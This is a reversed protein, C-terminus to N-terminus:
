FKKWQYDRMLKSIFHVTHKAIAEVVDQYDYVQNHTDIVDSIGRIIIFPIEFKHAVSAIAVGEMECAVVTPIVDMIPKLVTLNTVFQDGSVISGEVFSINSEQLLTRATQVLGQDSELFLPEGYMQGYPLDPDIKTLDVDFAGVRIALVIDGIKSPSIGGAVGTNIIASVLFGQCIIATTMSANVKGIGSLAIVVETDEITGLYLQKGGISVTSTISLIELLGKLESEMAVIIAIM